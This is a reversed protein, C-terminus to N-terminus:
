RLAAPPPCLVVDYGTPLGGPTRGEVPRCATPVPACGLVTCAIQQQPAAASVHRAHPRHASQAPAALALGCLGAGLIAWGLAAFRTKEVM